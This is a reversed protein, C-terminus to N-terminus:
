GPGAVGGSLGSGRSGEPDSSYFRGPQRLMSKWLWRQTSRKSLLKINPPSSIPKYLSSQVLQPSTLRYLPSNASLAPIPGGSCESVGQSTLWLVVKVDVM